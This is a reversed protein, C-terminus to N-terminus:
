SGPGLLTPQLLMTADGYVLFGIIAAILPAGVMLVLGVITMSLKSGFETLKASDGDSTILALGGIIINFLAWIGGIITLLIIIDSIFGTLGAGDGGLVGYTNTVPEPPKISGFVESAGTNGAQALLKM